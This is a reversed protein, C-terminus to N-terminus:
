FDDCVHFRMDDGVTGLFDNPIFCMFGLSASKCVYKALKAIRNPIEVHKSFISIVMGSVDIELGSRLNAQETTQPFFIGWITAQHHDVM